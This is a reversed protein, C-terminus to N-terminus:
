GVERNLFRRAEDYADIFDQNWRGDVCDDIMDLAWKLHDRLGVILEHHRRIESRAGELEYHYAEIREEPTQPMM